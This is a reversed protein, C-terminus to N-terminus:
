ARGVVAVTGAARFRPAAEAAMPFIRAGGVLGPRGGRPRHLAGTGALAAPGSGLTNLTPLGLMTRGEAQGSGRLALVGPGSM